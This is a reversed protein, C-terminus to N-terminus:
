KFLKQKKEAAHTKIISSITSPSKPFNQYGKAKFASHLTSSLAISKLSIFDCAAMRCIDEEMKKKLNNKPRLFPKLPLDTMEDETITDSSIKNAKSSNKIFPHNSDLHRKLSSTSSGTCSLKQGCINCIVHNPLVKKYYKWVFSAM